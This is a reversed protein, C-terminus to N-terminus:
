ITTYEISAVEVTNVDFCEVLSEDFLAINIGNDSITSRYAVGDYKERKIFETIFQTPLYELQSDNRRLPKSIERAMDQFINLYVAFNEIEGGYDFPSIDELKSLDVVRFKKKAVMKGITIYDYVNARIEYLITRPDLSMYLALMGEPNIRGATRFEKPPAMMEDTKYGKSDKAIRGRYFVTDKKYTKALASLYSAFESSNFNTHFRNVNKIYDAFEKWSLGGTISHESLFYDDYLEPIIAKKELLNKELQHSNYITEIFKRIGKKSLNFVKWDDSLADEINKARVDASTEYLDLLEIIRSIVESDSDVNSIYVDKSHCFDCEGIQAANRLLRKVHSDSFCNICCNM